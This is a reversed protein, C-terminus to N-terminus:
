GSGERTTRAAQAMCKLYCSPDGRYEGALALCDQAYFKAGVYQAALSAEEANGPLMSGVEAIAARTRRAIDDPSYDPPPLPMQRRLTDVILWYTDRPLQLTLDHTLHQTEM